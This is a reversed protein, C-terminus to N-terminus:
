FVFICIAFPVFYCGVFLLMTAHDFHLGSPIGTLAISETIVIAGIAYFVSLLKVVFKNETIYEALWRIVWYLQMVPIAYFFSSVLAIWLVLPEFQYSPFGLPLLLGLALSGAFVTILWTFIVSYVPFQKRKGIPSKQEKSPLNNMFTVDYFYM